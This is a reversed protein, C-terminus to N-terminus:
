CSVATTTTVCLPKSWACPVGTVDIFFSSLHVNTQLSVMQHQYSMIDGDDTELYDLSFSTVYDVTMLPTSSTVLTSLRYGGSLLEYLIVPETMNITVNYPPPVFTDSCWTYFSSPYTFAFLEEPPNLSSYSSARVSHVLPPLSDAGNNGQNTLHQLSPCGLILSFWAM